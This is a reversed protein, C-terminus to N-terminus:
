DKAVKSTAKKVSPDTSSEFPPNGAAKKEKWNRTRERIRPKPPGKPTSSYEESEHWMGEGPKLPEHNSKETNYNTMRTRARERGLSRPFQKAPKTNKNADAM